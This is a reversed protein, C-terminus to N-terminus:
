SAASVGVLASMPLQAGNVGLTVGGAGSMVNKVTGVSQIGIPITAGAANVGTLSLTYSGDPARGGSSMTGDWNFRGSAANPSLSGTSVVKGSSDTVTATLSSIDSPAQWSWSAPGSAGLGSIASDFHAEKGIFAAADAMSGGSLQALIDKLTATQQLSQEVQSFQVLQQTYQATDMPDLPDQNQMQTTLLKLFMNFDASTGSGAKGLSGILSQNKTDTQSIATMLYEELSSISTETRASVAINPNSKRARRSNPM